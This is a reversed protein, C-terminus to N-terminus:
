KLSFRVSDMSSSTAFREGISECTHFHAHSPLMPHEAHNKRKRKRHCILIAALFAMSLIGMGLGIIMFENVESETVCNKEDSTDLGEKFPGCNNIGNCRLSRPICHLSQTCQFEQCNSTDKIETWIAKFGKAGVAKDAVFFSVRMLNTESTIKSHQELSDGCLELPTRNRENWPWVRLAASPCGREDPKGEIELTEFYLVIKHGPSVHIFWNCQLNSGESSEAYKEPYNPSHIVGNLQGSINGGCEGFESKEEFFMYRGMFGSYVDKEDTHLYVKLGVAIKRLSVVPGPASNACYRGVLEESRDQYIQYIELWDEVCQSRGYAVWAGMEEANILNEVRVKFSDFVIQVQEHPLAYFEYICDTSSPYNSPHRPSNFRGDKRSSSRYTFKCSGDPAPTGIPILYETEFKFNAKFGSGPKAGAKFLLVLRPGETKVVPPTATGCFEYDHKDYHYKEEQGKTYVKLYGDGCAYRSPETSLPVNFKEFTLRVRELNQEDQMGYIFYRCVVNTQYPFPYNPSYVVGKSEKKSLIKQDCETGRIHEADPQIFDLKVYSEAFEYLALFGRNQAPATRKLTTFTIYLKNQTSFIVLNRMQGCYTGIKEAMNDPGDYITVADFPCHAGGYFLDFDRFEIRLRQNERGIFQYSCHLDKPYTGPYTPSMIEGSKQGDSNIRFSCRESRPEPTNAIPTGLKYKDEPIFQFNGSFRAETINPRDSHFVFSLANYLSIRLRPPIKGCYRGGFPTQILSQDDPKRLETFLDLYEHYCEPPTGQLGFDDFDLSVRENEQGIFTFTCQMVHQAPNLFTPAIFSGNKSLLESSSTFTQDCAYTFSSFHGLLIVVVSLYHSWTM